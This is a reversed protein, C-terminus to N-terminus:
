GKWVQGGISGVTAYVHGAGSSDLIGLVTALDIGGLFIIFIVGIPKNQKNIKKYKEITVIM